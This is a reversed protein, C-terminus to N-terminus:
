TETGGGDELLLLGAGITGGAAVTPRRAEVRVSVHVSRPRSSLRDRVIQCDGIGGAIGIALLRANAHQDVALIRSWSDDSVPTLELDVQFHYPLSVGAYTIGELDCHAIIQLV